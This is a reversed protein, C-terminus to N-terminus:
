KYVVDGMRLAPVTTNLTGLHSAGRSGQRNMDMTRTTLSSTVVRGAMRMPLQGPKFYKVLVQWNNM